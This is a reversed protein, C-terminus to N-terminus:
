TVHIGLKPDWQAPFCILAVKAGPKIGLSVLGNAVQNSLKDLEGYSLRLDGAVIADREPTLRAHHTIISALNLTSVRATM